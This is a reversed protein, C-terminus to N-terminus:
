TSLMSDLLGQVVKESTHFIEEVKDPNIQKALDRALDSEGHNLFDRIVGMAVLLQNPRTGVVRRMIEAGIRGPTISDYYTAALVLHPAADQHLFEDGNIAREACYMSQTMAAKALAKENKSFSAALYSYNVMLGFMQSGDRRRKLNFAIKAVEDARHRALHKSLIEDRGAKAIKRCLPRDALLRNIAEAASSVDGKQYTVLHKNDQFLDFLGNGSSETLLLAGCMMAEFVRFNLDSKVTQNVVIEAFPFINWFEGREILLPVHKQLESFFAVRDPNLQPNMTGVFVSDYKKKESAEVFRSAWLPLWSVPNGVKEYEPLYDKQAVFTHDFASAILKHYHTHHQADVSYFIRPIESEGLGTFILPSSNDHVVILDPNCQDTIEQLPSLPRSLHFDYDPSPGWIFVEHGEERWEKAFWDQNILLIRM